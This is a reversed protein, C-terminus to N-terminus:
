LLCSGLKQATAKLKGISIREREKKNNFNKNNKMKEMASMDIANQM